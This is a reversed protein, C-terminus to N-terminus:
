DPFRNPVLMVYSIGAKELESTITGALIHAVGVLQLVRAHERVLKVMGFPGNCMEHDRMEMLQMFVASNRESVRLLRNGEVHNGANILTFARTMTEDISDRVWVHAEILTRDDNIFVDIGLRHVLEELISIPSFLNSLGGIIKGTAPGELLVVDNKKMVVRLFSAIEHFLRSRKGDQHYDGVVVVKPDAGRLRYPVFGTDAAVQLLRDLADSHIEVPCPRVGDRMLLLENAVRDHRDLYEKETLGM